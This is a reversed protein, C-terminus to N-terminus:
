GRTYWPDDCAKVISEQTKKMDSNRLEDRCRFFVLWGGSFPIKQEKMKVVSEQKNLM